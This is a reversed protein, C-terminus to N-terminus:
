MRVTLGDLRKLPLGVLYWDEDMEIRVPVWVDNIKVEFCEGCHLGGYYSEMGFRIDYRGSEKDYFLNGERKESM